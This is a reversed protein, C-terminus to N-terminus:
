REGPAQQLPSRQEASPSARVNVEYIKIPRAVGELEVEDIERADVLDRVAVLTRESVLIQGARARDALRSALNVHNGVVTYDLRAASGINGVTVYGTSIGIGITIIEDHEVVWRQQMEALTARMELAARVAREAHDEYAVPDGFFVKVTDGMYKDLTGGHQFVVETLATLCQNMLDVLEEPQLRESMASLGRIDAFCVTLNKRRSTLNLDVTGALISDALQPSLYRRLATARELDGHQEEVKTQLGANVSHLQDYLTALQGSMTNLNKSLTGFEDRNPVDVRQAFNGAAIRALAHDIRRVPRVFAWSLVFGLLLASVLGAISFLGVLTTLLGRDAAFLDRAASMEEVAEANLRAMAAELEHSIAHEENLHLAQAADINGARYQALVRESSAAFRADAERVGRLFERQEPTTIAEIANLHDVFARKATVIRDNNTEDRTLLAMARYHSQATVLYEMQRTRDVKEQLRTVTSFRHSMRDIIVLSLIGMGLLLLAGALFGFLLKAHVSARIGAVGDVLPRLAGTFRPLGSDAYGRGDGNPSPTLAAAASPSAPAPAGNPDSRPEAVAEGQDTM